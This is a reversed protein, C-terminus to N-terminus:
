YGRPYKRRKFMRRKPMGHEDVASTYHCRPSSSYGTCGIFSGNRGNIVRLSRGCRPCSKAGLGTVVFDSPIISSEDFHLRLLSQLEESEIIRIPKGTIWARAQKSVTGTTIVIADTCQNAHMTGFLDRLVPEGVSGQVRKCQLVTKEGDKYLYGDSGNDGAYPTQEVTYGMRAFLRCVLIEFAQPDMKKVFEPLRVKAVWENYLKLKVAEEQQKRVEQEHKLIAAQREHETTCISCLSHKKKAGRMGHSCPETQERHTKLKQKVAKYAAGVLALAIWIGYISLIESWSANSYYALYM